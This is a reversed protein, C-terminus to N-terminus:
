VKMNTKKRAAAQEHSICSVSEPQPRHNKEEVVVIRESIVERLEEALQAFLQFHVAVVLDREVLNGLLLRLADYNRRTGASRLIGANAHVHNAPKGSHNWNEAHTEAMLRDAKRNSSAHNARRFDHVAFGAADVVVVLCNEFIQRLIEGGRAIVREDDLFFRKRILEFNGRFGIADDHTEAVAFEEDFAHLEVGFRDEGVNPHLEQLIEEHQLFM